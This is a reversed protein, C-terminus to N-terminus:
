RADVGPQWVKSRLEARADHLHVRVTAPRIRLTRAVEDTSYGVYWRLVACEAQRRTLSSLVDVVHARDLASPEADYNRTVSARAELRRGLDSRRRRRASLRFATRFLYAAPDSVAAWRVLVQVFAEQAVEEADPRSAGTLRLASVLRGFQRDYLQDFPDESPVTV